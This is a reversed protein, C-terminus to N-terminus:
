SLLMKVGPRSASISPSLYTKPRELRLFRTMEEFPYNTQERLTIETGDGVKVNAKCSNYLVAAVGNDPTALVLHEVYYPWGFGHNHQCCRSSFPNMALFPGSNDLGPHHNRSDSIAM